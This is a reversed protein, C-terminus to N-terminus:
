PRTALEAAIRTRIDDALSKANRIQADRAARVNAFRQSNRDYGALSVVSGQIALMNGSMPVLKYEATTYVSNATARGTVTDILPTQTSERLAIQLLYKPDVTEGTGNLAFRLENELYHGALGPIPAISISQLEARVDKGSTPAYMPQFCGGLAFVPGLCASLILLKTGFRM